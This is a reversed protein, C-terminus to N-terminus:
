NGEEKLLQVSDMGIGFQGVSFRGNAESVAMIIGQPNSPGMTFLGFNVYLWGFNPTVPLAESGVLVRGNAHPFPLSAGLNEPNSEEDFALLAEQGQPVWFPLTGCAFPDTPVLPGRWYIISTGGNFAGGNVYRTGWSSQLAPRFGANGTAYAGYFGVTGNPSGAAVHVLPGGFASNGIPDVIQFEGWLVNNQSVIGVGKIPDGFYDEDPFRDGSFQVANDVLVYGRAIGDGHDFGACLGVRDSTQGTHWAQLTQATARSQFRSWDGITGSEFDTAFLESTPPPPPEEVPTDVPLAILSGSDPDYVGELLQRLDVTLADFGTLLVDFAITGVGLDTFVMVHALTAAAEANRIVFTTNVGDPDALDVEFYPLLVTAAPEPDGTTRADARFAPVSLLLAVVAVLGVAFRM